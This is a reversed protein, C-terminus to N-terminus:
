FLSKRYNQPSMLYKQKFMKSFYFQDSIGVAEAIYKISEDTQRLLECAVSMRYENLYKIPSRGTSKKFHAYFSSESMKAIGAMEEVSINKQYNDKIFNIVPLIMHNRYIYKEKSMQLLHKIIGYVCIMKDCLCESAEFKNFDADLIESFSNDTIIPFDFIDDLSYTKNIIVDLFIYRATFENSEKNAFHTIKQTVSSPAIFFVGERTAYEKESDLKIGYFGVKSQVISLYPLQKIHVLGNNSYSTFGSYDFYKIDISEILM